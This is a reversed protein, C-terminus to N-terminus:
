LAATADLEAAQRKIREFLRNWTEEVHGLHARMGDEAASRNGRLIADVVLDHEAHSAALRGLASFQARRFAQVRLRTSTTMEALYANGTGEYIMSHFAENQGAYRELDGRRVTTEMDRHLEELDRRQAPTMRLASEGACLIELRSMVFFMGALTAEDPQAVTAQRHAKQLVLGSASLRRLAERIPTRSVGFELALASEDLATGPLLERNVIQQALANHINEANTSM